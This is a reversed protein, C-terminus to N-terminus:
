DRALPVEYIVGTMCNRLLVVISGDAKQVTAVVERRRKTLTSVAVAIM